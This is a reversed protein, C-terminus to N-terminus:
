GSLGRVRWLIGGDGGSYDDGGGGAGRGGHLGDSDAAYPFEVGGTFAPIVPKWGLITRVVDGASIDFEGYGVSMVFVAAAGLVLM